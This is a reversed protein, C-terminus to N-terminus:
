VTRIPLILQLEELESNDEEHPTLLFPRMSGNFHFEVDTTEMSKLADIAYRINFSIEFDEEGELSSYFVEVEGKGAESSSAHINAAGNVHLKAIGNNGDKAIGGILELSNLFEKRNLVMVARSDQPILRSTEPYNGELLRSAFTIQGNKLFILNDSSYLEVDQSRDFVKGMMELSKAPFVAQFLDTEEQIPYHVRGLRHSDTSVMTLAGSDVAFLVGQLIPRTDTDAASFATKNICDQFTHAKLTILPKGKIAPIRPYEESDMCNLNFKSKDSSIKLTKEELSFSIDEKLKKVIEVAQKPLIIKGPSEVHVTVGDVPISYSIINTSDSGTLLVNEENVEMLIGTLVPIVSKTSVVKSVINLGELLLSKNINIKMRLGGVNKAFLFAYFLPTLEGCNHM